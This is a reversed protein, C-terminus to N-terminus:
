SKPFERTSKYEKWWCYCCYCWIVRQWGSAIAASAAISNYYQQCTRTVTLAITNFDL